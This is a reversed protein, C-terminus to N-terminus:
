MSFGIFWAGLTFDGRRHALVGPIAAPAAVLGALVITAVMWGRTKM